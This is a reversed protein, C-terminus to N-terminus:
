EEIYGCKLLEMLFLMKNVILDKLCYRDQGPSNIVSNFCVPETQNM